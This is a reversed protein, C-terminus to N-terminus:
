ETVLISLELYLDISQRVKILYQGPESISYNM